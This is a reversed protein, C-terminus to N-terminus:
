RYVDNNNACKDKICKRLLRQCQRVGLNFGYQAKIYTSLLKGDWVDESLGITKPTNRLIQELEKIQFPQLRTPRGGHKREVIGQLGNQEFHSVWYQVIRPSDGFLLAAERSSWGQAVLFLSHLRHSFRSEDDRYIENTLIKITASDYLSFKTM